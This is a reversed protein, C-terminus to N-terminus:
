QTPKAPEVTVTFTDRGGKEDWGQKTLKLGAKEMAEFVKLTNPRGSTDGTIMVNQVSLTVVDIKLDTQAACANLAQLVLMWKASLSKPDVRGGKDADIQRLASELRQIVQTMRSPLQQAGPMM